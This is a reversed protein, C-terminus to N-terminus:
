IDPRDSADKSFQHRRFRDKVAALFVDLGAIWIVMVLEVPDEIYHAKRLTHRCLITHQQMLMAAHHYLSLLTPSPLVM